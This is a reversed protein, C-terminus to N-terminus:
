GSRPLRQRRPALPALPDITGSLPRAKEVIACVQAESRRRGLSPAAQVLAALEARFGELARLREDVEELRRQLAAEVRGCPSTGRAALRLVERIEALPLGLAQAKRIFAIRQLLEPPYLRYGAPSRPAPPVLREREYYHLTQVGVGLARAAEGALLWKERQATGNRSAPRGNGPKGNGNRGKAPADRRAM